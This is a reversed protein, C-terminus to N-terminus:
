AGCHPRCFVDSIDPAMTGCDTEFSMRCAHGAYSLDYTYIVPKEGNGTGQIACSKLDPYATGHYFGCFGDIFECKDNMVMAEFEMDPFNSAIGAMEDPSLSRPFVARTIGFRRYFEIARSNFAAALLSLHRKLDPLRRKLEMLLGLDSVLVAEGGANKWLEAFGVVEPLMEVTYRVNLTLAAPLGANVAEKAINKLKEESAANAVTGQRRTLTDFASYREIWGAPLYGCYIEGAGAEALLPVERPENAPAVIKVNDPFAKEM